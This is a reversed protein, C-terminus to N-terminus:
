ASRERLTLERQLQAMARYYRTKLTSVSGGLRAAIEDFTLDEFHKLRVVEVESATLQRIVQELEDRVELGDCHEPAPREDEPLLTLRARRRKGRVFNRIEWRCIRFVWAELPARGTFQSLKQLVILTVDQVLDAVDHADLPKGMRHNLVKLM